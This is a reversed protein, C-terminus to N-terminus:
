LAVQWFRHAWGISRYPGISWYLSVPPLIAQDRFFSSINRSIVKCFTWGDAFFPCVLPCLLGIEDFLSNEHNMTEDITECAWLVNFVRYDYYLHDNSFQVAVVLSFSLLKHFILLISRINLYERYRRYELWLLDSALWAVHSLVRSIFGPETLHTNFRNFEDHSLIVRRTKDGTAHWLM